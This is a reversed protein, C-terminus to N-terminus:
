CVKCYQFSAIINSVSDQSIMKSSQVYPCQYPQSNVTFVEQQPCVDYTSYFKNAKPPLGPVTPPQPRSVTFTPSPKTRSISPRAGPRVPKYQTVSAVYPKRRPPKTIPSKQSPRSIISSTRRTPQCPPCKGDRCAPFDPYSFNPNSNEPVSCPRIKLSVKNSITVNSVRTNPLINTRRRPYLTGFVNGSESGSDFRQCSALCVLLSLTLSARGTSTM